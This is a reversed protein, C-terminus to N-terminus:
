PSWKRVRSICDPTKMLPMRNRRRLDDALIGSRHSLVQVLRRSITSLSDYCANRDPASGTTILHSMSLQKVCYAFFFPPLNASIRGPAAAHNRRRLLLLHTTATSHRRACRRPSGTRLYTARLSALPRRLLATSARQIAVKCLKLM